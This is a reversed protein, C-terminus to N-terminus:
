PTTSNGSRRTTTRVARLMEHVTANGPVQSTSRNLSRPPYRSEPRSGGRLMFANRASSFLVCCDSRRWGPLPHYERAAVRRDDIRDNSAVLDQMVVGVRAIRKADAVQGQFKKSRVKFLPVSKGTNRTGADGFYIARVSDGFPRM